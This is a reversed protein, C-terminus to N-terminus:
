GQAAIPYAYAGHPPFSSARYMFNITSPTYCVLACSGGILILPNEWRRRDLSGSQASPKEAEPQHLTTSLTDSCIARSPEALMFQPHSLTVVPSCTAEEHPRPTEVNSSVAAEAAASHSAIQRRPSSACFRSYAITHRPYIPAGDVDYPQPDGFATILMRGHGPATEAPCHSIPSATQLRCSQTLSSMRLVLLAIGRELSSLISARSQFLHAIPAM